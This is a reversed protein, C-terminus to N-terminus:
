NLRVSGSSTFSFEVDLDQEVTERNKVRMYDYPGDTGEGQAREMHLITAPDFRWTKAADGIASVFDDLYPTPSSIGALSPQVNTVTGDAGVTVQVFIKVNGAHANMVRYPYAPLALDGIPRASIYRESVDPVPLASQAQSLTASARPQVFRLASSGSVSKLAPTRCSTLSSCAWTIAILAFLRGLLKSANMYAQM